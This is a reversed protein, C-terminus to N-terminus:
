KTAPEQDMLSMMLHGFIGAILLMFLIVIWNMPHLLLRTNLIAM